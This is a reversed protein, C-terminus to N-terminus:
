VSAKLSFPTGLSKPTIDGGGSIYGYLQVQIKRNANIVSANTQATGANYPNLMAPTAVVKLSPSYTITIPICELSNLMINFPSIYVLEGLPLEVLQDNNVYIKFDNTLQQKVFQPSSNTVLNIGQTTSILKVGTIIYTDPTVNRFQLRSTITKGIDVRGLALNSDGAANTITKSDTSPLISQWAFSYTPTTCTIHLSFIDTSSYTAAPYNTSIILANTSNADGDGTYSHLSIRTFNTPVYNKDGFGLKLGEVSSAIQAVQQPTLVLRWVKYEYAKLISNITGYNVIGFVNSADPLRGVLSSIDYTPPIVNNYKCGVGFLIAVYDGKPITLDLTADGSLTNLKSFDELKTISADTTAAGILLYNSKKPVLNDQSFGFKVANPSLASESVWAERPVGPRLKLELQYNSSPDNIEALTHLGIGEHTLDKIFSTNKLM